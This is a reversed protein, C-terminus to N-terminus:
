RPYCLFLHAAEYGLRAVGTSNRAERLILNVDRVITQPDPAATLYEARITGLHDVLVFRPEFLISSGPSESDNYFARFGNGVVYRTRQPDGSLLLWPVGAGSTTAGLDRAVPNLREPTDQVPDLTITALSLSADDPLLEALNDRLVAIDRLSLPCKEQCSAYSISYLTLQGRMDESTVTRGNQDVFAYGPSPAIRPLVTIPRFLSFSLIAITVVLLGAYLWTRGSAALSWGVMKGRSNSEAPRSQGASVREM